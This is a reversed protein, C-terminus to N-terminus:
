WSSREHGYPRASRRIIRAPNGVVVANAPVSKVVVSGAGIVAREGVTINGLIVVNSGIEVDDGIIPSNGDVKANGITTCHRLIVNRGLVCDANLVLGHAHYLHLGGGITVRYPLEVGIVFETLVKYFINYPSFIVRLSRSRKSYNAIRFLVCLFRGKVNGKNSHWDQFVFAAFNM